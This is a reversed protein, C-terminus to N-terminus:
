PKTGFSNNKIQAAIPTAVPVAAGVVESMQYSSTAQAQTVWVNGSMDIAIARPGNFITQPKIYGGTQGPGVYQTPSLAAGNKTFESVAYQYTTAATSGAASGNSNNNAAWVNGAGDIALQRPTQLGAQGTGTQNQFGFTATYSGAAGTYTPVLQNLSNGPVSNATTNNSQSNWINGAADVALGYTNILYTSNNTNIPTGYVTGKATKPIIATITNVTNSAAFISNQGDIAISTIAAKAAGPGAGLSVLGSGATATTAGVPLQYITETTTDAFIVNGYGDPQISYATDATGNITIPTTTTGDFKVLGGPASNNTGWVNGALDISAGGRSGSLKLASCNLPLGLPSMEALVGTGNGNAMWVNGSADIGTGYGYNFFYGGNCQSAALQAATPTPTTPVFVVSYGIGITWDSPAAALGTQFPASPMILNYLNTLNATSTNTNTTTAGTATTPQAVDTPNTLMYYGAQLTDIATAFTAGPQSTYAPNPAVANNFLTTCNADASTTANVCSALIDAMSIIKAQEPTATVVISSVLAAGGTNQQTYTSNATGNNYNVLLPVLAFANNLGVGAQNPSAITYDGNTGMTMSGPTTANGPNIYQQLAALTAITTIENIYVFVTSAASCKGITAMLVSAANNTTTVGTGLTNGGSGVIYLQSGAAPCYYSATTGTNTGTGANQTFGFAGNTDTTTTALLVSGTGYGTTGASYLNVTANYIPQNGGHMKGTMTTAIVPNPTSATTVMNSCGTLLSPLSILLGAKVLFSPRFSSM